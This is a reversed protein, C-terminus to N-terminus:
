VAVRRQRQDENTRCVGGVPIMKALKKVVGQWEKVIKQEHLNLDKIAKGTGSNLLLRLSRRKSVFSDELAQRKAQLRIWVPNREFKRWKARRQWGKKKM